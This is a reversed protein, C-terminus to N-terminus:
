LQVSKNAHKGFFVTLEYIIVYTLLQREHMTSNDDFYIHM